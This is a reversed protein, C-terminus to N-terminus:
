SAKSSAAALVGAYGHCINADELLGKERLMRHMKPLNYHPVTMLLHHELHYNVRIPAILLREWWSAITTRTNGFPSDVRTPMSHEAIARIRMVLSHTTLWAAVWLLYLAPHGTLALIAFLAVNTIIVGRLIQWPSQESGERSTKGKKNSLDRALTAKARKWGTQGSLDRWVKRRFSSRTVPFPISLNLDPDEKTWTKAHHKLHYPRYPAIDSWVPYAGLWNGVWDNVKPNSFLSRHSADHMIVALGLQRAGIVTISVLVTLPNPWIAVLAFAGGIIAWTSALTLWSKWDQMKLLSQIEERTFHEMWNARGSNAQPGDALNEFSETATTM